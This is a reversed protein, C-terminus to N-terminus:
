PALSKRLELTIEPAAISRVVIAALSFLIAFVLASVSATVYRKYMQREYATEEGPGATVPTVSERPLKTAPPHRDPSARRDFQHVLNGIGDQHRLRVGGQARPRGSVVGRDFAVRKQAPCGCCPRDIGPSCRSRDSFICVRVGNQCDCYFLAFM